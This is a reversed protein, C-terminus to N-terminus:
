LNGIFVTRLPDRSDAADPMGGIGPMGHRAQKRCPSVLQSRALRM